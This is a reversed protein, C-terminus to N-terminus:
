RRWRRITRRRAGGTVRVLVTKMAAQFADNQGAESRDRRRWRKISNARTLAQGATGLCLAGLGLVFDSGSAFISPFASRYPAM